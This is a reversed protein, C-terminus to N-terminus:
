AERPSTAGEVSQSLRRYSRQLSALDEAGDDIEEKEAGRKVYRYLTFAGSLVAAGEGLVRAWAILESWGPYSVTLEDSLIRGFFFLGVVLAIQTVTQKECGDWDEMRERAQDELVDAMFSSFAVISADSIFGHSRLSILSQPHFSRHLQSVSQIACPKSPTELKPALRSLAATLVPSAERVFANKMQAYTPQARIDAIVESAQKMGLQAFADSVAVPQARTFHYRDLSERAVDVDGAQLFDDAAGLGMELAAFEGDLNGPYFNAASQFSPVSVSGVSPTFFSM